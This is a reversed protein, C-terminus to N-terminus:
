RPDTKQMLQRIESETMHKNFVQVRALYGSFNEIPVGTSGILIEGREIFLSIPLCSDKKGNVYVHELAGDFSVAIHQWKGAEPIHKFPIDVAGDGHAVAGYNGKGYMLAVYSSQLMQERSAWTVLCEGHGIEPNYVWASATFPANWNMTEPAPKNLRLFSKGDFCLAKVGDVVCVKLPATAQFIGKLTGKNKFQSFYKGTKLNKVQFDVIKDGNPKPGPPTESPKNQFDPLDFIQDYVKVNWIAPIVGTKETGTITLKVYRGQMENDDIMPMGCVMNQTRDAFIQWKKNNESLEIKYQYYYTAYEFDTAIRKIKVSKGLDITVSQPLQCSAAKWLNGNNEDTVHAPKYVHDYGGPSYRTPDATLHYASSSTVPCNKALNTLKIDPEFEVGHHSPNIKEITVSDSFFMPDICMQRFEGGTSHPNDHRHYLIYYNGDKELVSNHGPSDVTGDENSKLIPNNKGYTFPGEPSDGISYHVQYTSLRCDGSSYMLFYKDGYKIPYAAEFAHPIQSMPIFGTKEITVMDDPNIRAYGMGGFSSCWTGFYAHVSGDDDILYQADLAPLHEGSTGVPIAPKGDNVPRFPGLPSESVYAYINCGRECNGMFYYYLGNAARHVDPAWCNNLNAPLALELKHNYWAILDKSVWVTPEGSALKVGDTTGYLYYTDGFKRITPDAFYGPVLPNGTWKKQAYLGSLLGILM